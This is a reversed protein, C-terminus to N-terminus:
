LPWVGSETPGTSVAMLTSGAAAGRSSTTVKLQAPFAAPCDFGAHCGCGGPQFFLAAVRCGPPADLVALDAHIGVADAHRIGGADQRFRQVQAYVLPRQDATCQQMIVKQIVPMIRVVTMPQMPKRM